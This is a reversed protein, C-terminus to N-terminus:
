EGVRVLWLLREKDGEKMRLQMTDSELRMIEVAKEETNHISDKSFLFAGQM